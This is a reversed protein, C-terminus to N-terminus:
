KCIMNIEGEYCAVEKSLGGNPNAKITPDVTYMSVTHMKGKLFLPFNQKKFVDQYNRATCQVCMTTARNTTNMNVMVYYLCIAIQVENPSKFSM